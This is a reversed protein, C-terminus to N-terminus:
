DTEGDDDYTYVRRVNERDLYSETDSYVEAKLEQLAIELDHILVKLHNKNM